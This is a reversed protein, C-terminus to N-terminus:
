TIIPGSQWKSQLLTGSTSYALIPLSSTYHHDISRVGDGHVHGIILWTFSLQNRGQAHKFGVEVTPIKFHYKCSPVSYLYERGALWRAWMWSFQSQRALTGPPAPCICLTDGM